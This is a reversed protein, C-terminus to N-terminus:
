PFPILLGSQWQLFPYSSGDIQTWVTSYNWDTSFTAQSTMDPTFLPAGKGMDNQRALDSDYYSFDITGGSNSGVLGGTTPSIVGGDVEIAAYTRLLDGENRGVLGGVRPTVVDDAIVTDVAPDAYYTAYSDEVLSGRLYGILGGVSYGGYVRVQAFSRRVTLDEAYGVLGGINYNANGATVIGTVGVSHVTTPGGQVAGSLIGRNQGDGLIEADVIFLDTVEANALYGFLGVGTGGRDSYLGQIEYGDGNFTGEFPSGGNGIPEWGVGFNYPAVDLDIDNLLVFDSDLFTRVSDLQDATAIQFPDGATGNGGAFPTEWQAYLELDSAGIRPTSGIAYAIGSGDSQTNWETFTFGARGLFLNGDPLAAVLQGPTYTASDTPPTGTENGNGFYLVSFDLEVNTGDFGPPPGPLGEDMFNAIVLGDAAASISGDADTDARALAEDDSAFLGDYANPGDDTDHSTVVGDGNVDGPLVGFGRSGVTEGNPDIIVITITAPADVGPAAPVSYPIILRNQDPEVEWSDLVTVENGIPARRSAVVLGESFMSQEITGAFTIVAAIEGDPTPRRPEVFYDEDGYQADTIELGILQGTQHEAMSEWSTIDPIVRPELESEAEVREGTFGTSKPDVPNTLQRCGALALFLLASVTFVARTARLKSHSAM